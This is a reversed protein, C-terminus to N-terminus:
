YEEQYEVADILSTRYFRPHNGIRSGILRQRKSSTHLTENTLLRRQPYLPGKCSTIIDSMATQSDPHWVPPQSCKLIQYIADTRLSEIIKNLIDRQRDSEDNQKRFFTVAPPGWSTWVKEHSEPIVMRAPHHQFYLKCCFCAAKSCAIYKDNAVFSLKNNFFHELVQIEAHVTPKCNSFEEMFGRFIDSQRNINHLSREIESREPDGKKLMRSLIGNLSTHSDPQPQSVSRVPSVLRVNFTGLLYGLSCADQILQKHATIRYGLRGIYHRATAFPGRGDLPGRQRDESQAELTLTAMFQSKAADHASLCCALSDDEHTVTQLWSGFERDM